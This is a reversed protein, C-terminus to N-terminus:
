TTEEEEEKKDVNRIFFLFGAEIKGTPYILLFEAGKNFRVPAWSGKYIPLALCHQFEIKEELQPFNDNLYYDEAKPLEMEVTEDDKPTTPVYEPLNVEVFNDRRYKDDIYDRAAYVKMTARDASTIEASIM